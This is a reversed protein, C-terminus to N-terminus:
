DADMSLYERATKWEGNIDILISVGLRLFSQDRTFAGVVRTRRKLEQGGDGQEGLRQADEDGRLLHQGPGKVAVGVKPLEPDEKDSADPRTDEAPQVEAGHLQFYPSGEGGDSSHVM